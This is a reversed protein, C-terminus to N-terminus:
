RTTASVPDSRRSQNGAGDVVQLRYRFTLGSALGRDVLETGSIPDTTIQVFEARGPDQRFVLYGVADADPSPDWRLRVSGQEPLAVFNRPLRPPFRDDYDIERDGAPQSAIETEEGTVTRVTYIYREGYKVNRDIHSTKEGPVRAIPEGYDRETAFRRYIDFAQADVSSSWSLVIAAAKPEASLNQPPTPPEQPVLVARNSFVSVESGKTTRVAFINATPEEPLPDELPLRFQIRNGVISSQLDTGLLTLLLEGGVEMEAPEATPPPADPDAPKTLLHLEVSDIGGLALGNVTTAPYTMEFLMQGGQQSIKLDKTAAPMNRLPPLPPGKKGCGATTLGLVMLMALSAITRVTRAECCM